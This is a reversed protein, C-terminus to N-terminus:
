WKLQLEDQWVRTESSGEAFGSFRTSQSPLFEVLKSPRLMTGCNATSSGVGCSALSNLSFGRYSEVPVRTWRQLSPGARREARSTQRVCRTLWRHCSTIPLLRGRKRFLVDHGLSLALGCGCLPGCIRGTTLISTEDAREANVRRACRSAVMMPELVSFIDADDSRQGDHSRHTKWLM